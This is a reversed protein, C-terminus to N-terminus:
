RLRPCNGPMFPVQGHSTTIGPEISRAVIARLARPYGVGEGRRADFPAGIGGRCDAGRGRAVTGCAGRGTACSPSFTGDMCRTCYGIVKNEYVVKTVVRSVEDVAPHYIYTAYTQGEHTCHTTVLTGDCEANVTKSDKDEQSGTASYNLTGKDLANDYRVDPKNTASDASALGISIVLFLMFCWFMKKM